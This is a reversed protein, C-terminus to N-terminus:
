SNRNLNKCTLMNIYCTDPVTSGEKCYDKADLAADDQNANVNGLWPQATRDLAVCRWMPRTTLGNVFYECNNRPIQCTMPANSQKKCADFSKNSAVRQYIDKVLWQNESSDRTSCQWYNDINENIPNSWSPVLFFYMSTFAIHKLYNNM